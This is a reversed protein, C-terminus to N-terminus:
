YLTEFDGSAERYNELDGTALNFYWGHLTLSGATEREQVGPYGRLNELSAALARRSCACAQDDQSAKPMEKFVERAAPEAVAMWRDLPRSPEIADILRNLLSRQRQQALSTHRIQETSQRATFMQQLDIRDRHM